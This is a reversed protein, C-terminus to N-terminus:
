FKKIFILIFIMNNSLHLQNKISACTQNINKQCYLNKYVKDCIKNDINYALNLTPNDTKDLIINEKLSNIDEKLNLYKIEAEIIFDNFNKIFCNNDNHMEFNTKAAM